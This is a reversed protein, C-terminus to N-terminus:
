LNSIENGPTRNEFTIKHNNTGDFSKDSPDTIIYTITPDALDQFNGSLRNQGEPSLLFADVLVLAAKTSSNQPIVCGQCPLTNIFLTFNGDIEKVLRVKNVSM